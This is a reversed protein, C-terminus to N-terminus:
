EVELMFDFFDEPQDKVFENVDCFDIEIPYLQWQNRVKRFRFYGLDKLKNKLEKMEKGSGNKFDGEYVYSMLQSGYLDDALCWENSKKNYRCLYKAYEWMRLMRMTEGKPYEKLNQLLKEKESM